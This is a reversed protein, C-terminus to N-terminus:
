RIVTEGERSLLPLGLFYEVGSGEVLQAGNPDLIKSGHAHGVRVGEGRLFEDFQETGCPPLAAPRLLRPSDFRLHARRANLMEFALTGRRREDRQEFERGSQLHIQRVKQAGRLLSRLWLLRFRIASTTSEGVRM